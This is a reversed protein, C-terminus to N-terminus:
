KGKGGNIFKECTHHQMLCEEGTNQGRATAHVRGMVCQYQVKVQGPHVHEEQTSEHHHRTWSQYGLSKLCLLFSKEHNGKLVVMLETHLDRDLHVESRTQDSLVLLFILRRFYSLPVASRRGDTHYTKQQQCRTHQHQGKKEKRKQCSHM